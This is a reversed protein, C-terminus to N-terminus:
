VEITVSTDVEDYNRRKGCRKWHLVTVLLALGVAMAVFIAFVSRGLTWSRADGPEQPVDAVAVYFLSMVGTHPETSNYKGVVRIKETTRLVLPPDFTCSSMSNIYGPENGIEGPEGDGYTPLSECLLETDNVYLTVSVGGRHLHGVMYVVEVYEDEESGSGGTGFAGSSAGHLEQTTELVHVCDDDEGGACQPIDYEINGPLDVDGTADCCAALYLPRTDTSVPEYEITYRLHYTSKEPKDPVDKFADMCYEGDECCYLGGFYTSPSCSTNNEGLLVSNCQNESGKRPAVASFLATADEDAGVLMRDESSCPCELCKHADRAEMGRTNIIHVNALLNDEGEVTTFRYPSPFVQRTGRSETGAGFNVGRNAGKPKMPSWWNKQREYFKHDSFVVHHHLYADALPVAVVNGDEDSEVVDAEFSVVSIPGKPIELHHYTNTVEGPYLSMPATLATHTMRHHIDATALAVLATLTTLNRLSIM